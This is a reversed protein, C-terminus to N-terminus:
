CMRMPTNNWMGHSTSLKPPRVILRHTEWFLNLILHEGPQPSCFTLKSANLTEDFVAGVALVYHGLEGGGLGGQVPCPQPQHSRAHAM